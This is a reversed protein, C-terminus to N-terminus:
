YFSRWNFFRQGLFNILGLIIVAVFNVLGFVVYVDWYCLEFKNQLFPVLIYDLLCIPLGFYVMLFVFKSKRFYKKINM